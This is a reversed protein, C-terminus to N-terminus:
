TKLLKLTESHNLAGGVRKYAYFLVNPKATYPDRLVKIGVKDVILYGLKFNGFTVPYNGAGIDPMAEDFAVPYGLLSPQAGATLGDRWIYDGDGNKLKDIASATNSNMLWTSGQRYVARVSWMLSKLDDAAIQGSSAAAIYQLTGWPRNFDTATSTPYSMIGLPKKIGTGSSFAIGETRGFKDGIKNTVWLGIDMYSDDLLRQTVPTNADMEHVPVRLMGVQASATQPRAEQEGVWNAAVEGYDIPEEWADGITMTEVRALQRIPSLDYIRKTMTNSIQPLVFYGGDPDSGISNTKVEAVLTESGTRVFSAIAKCEKELDAKTDAPEGGGGLRGRNAKKEIGDLRTMLAKVDDSVATIAATTAETLEAVAGMVGDDTGGEGANKTELKVIPKELEALANM